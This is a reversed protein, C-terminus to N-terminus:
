IMLCHAPLGIIPSQVGPVVLFRKKFGFQCVPKLVWAFEYKIPLRLSVYVQYNM